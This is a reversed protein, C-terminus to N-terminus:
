VHARGIKKQIMSTDLAHADDIIAINHKGAPEDSSIMIISVYFGIIILPILFTTLLFSKKRVRSLYERSFVLKIKGM